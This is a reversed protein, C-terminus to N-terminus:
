SEPLHVPHGQYLFGKKEDGCRSDMPCASLGKSRGGIKIKINLGMMQEDVDIWGLM